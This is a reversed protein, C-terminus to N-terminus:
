VIVCVWLLLRLQWPLSVRLRHRHQLSLSAHRRHQRILSVRCSEGVVPFGIAQAATTVPFGAASVAKPPSFGPTDSILCESISSPTDFALLSGGISGM